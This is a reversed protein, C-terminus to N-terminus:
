TAASPLAGSRSATTGTPPMRTEGPRSRNRQMGLRQQERALGHVYIETGGVPDPYFTFPVHLLKM